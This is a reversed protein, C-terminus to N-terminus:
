SFFFVKVVLWTTFLAPVWIPASLALILLKM